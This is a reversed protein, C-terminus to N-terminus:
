PASLLIEGFGSSIDVRGIAGAPVEARGCGRTVAPFGPPSLHSDALCLVYAGPTLALAYDGAAGTLTHALAPHPAPLSAKLFRLGADDLGAAGPGLVEDAQEVAVALVLQDALPEDPQGAVDSAAM